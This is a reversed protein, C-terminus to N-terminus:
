LLGVLRLATLASVVVALLTRLLRLWRYARSEELPDDEALNASM